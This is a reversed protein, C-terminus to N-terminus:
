QKGNQHLGDIFSVNAQRMKHCSLKRPFHARRTNSITAELQILMGEHLKVSQDLATFTITGQLVQVIIQSSTTHEKLQQEARFTFLVLRANGIDSLIQVFPHDDQFRTLTHLDFVILNGTEEPAETSRQLEANEPIHQM